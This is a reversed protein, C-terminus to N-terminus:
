RDFPMLTIKSRINVIASLQDGHHPFLEFHQKRMMFRLNLQIIPINPSRM